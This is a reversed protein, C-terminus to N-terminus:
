VSEVAVTLNLGVNVLSNISDFQTLVDSDRVILSNGIQGLSYIRSRRSVTNNAINVDGIVDTLAGFGRPEHDNDHISIASNATTLATFGGISTLLPNDYVLISSGIDHLGEFGNTADLTGSSPTTTCSSRAASRRSKSFGGITHPSDNYVKISGALGDDTWRFRQHIRAGTTTSKFTVM